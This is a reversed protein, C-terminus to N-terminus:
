LRNNVYDTYIKIAHDCGYAYTAYHGIKRLKEIWEDQDADKAKERGDIRKMEIWLGNYKENRLPWQYDVLGPRMGIAILAKTFWSHGIRENAHKILYERLLPVIQAYGWFAKCEQYESPIVIQAKLDLIPRRGIRRKRLMAIEM